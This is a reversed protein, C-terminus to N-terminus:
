SFSKKSTCSCARINYNIKKNCSIKLFFHTIAGSAFSTYLNCKNSFITNTKSSRDFLKTRVFTQFIVFFAEFNTTITLFVNRISVTKQSGDAVLALKFVKANLNAQFLVFGSLSSFGQFFFDLLAFDTGFIFEYTLFKSNVLWNM